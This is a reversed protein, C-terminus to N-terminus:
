KRNGVMLQDISVLSRRLHNRVAMEAEDPKGKIIAKLIEKHEECTEHLRKSEFRSIFYIRIRVIHDLISSYYESLFSNGAASVIREHIQYGSLLSKRVGQDDVVKFSDHNALIEEFETKDKMTAALRAAACEFIERIEFVERIHDLSINSVFCGKNPVIVVHRDRELHQLAERVPTKSVKLEDCLVQENLYEQPKLENQVIREKLIKYVQLKKSIEERIGIAGNM